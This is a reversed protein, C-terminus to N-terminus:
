PAARRPSTPAAPPPTIACVVRAAVEHTFGAMVSQLLASPALATRGGRRFCRRSRGRAARRRCEPRAPRPARHARLPSPPPRRCARRNRSSAAHPTRSAARVNSGTRDPTGCRRGGGRSYRDAAPSSAAAPAPPAAPAAPRRSARAHPATRRGRRCAAFLLALDLEVRAHGHGVALHQLVFIERLHGAGLDGRGLLRHLPQDQREGFHARPPERRMRAAMQDVDAARKRALMFPPPSKMSRRKMPGFVLGGGITASSSIDPEILWYLRM